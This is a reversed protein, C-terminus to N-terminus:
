LWGSHSRTKKNCIMYSVYRKLQRYTRDMRKNRLVEHAIDTLDCQVSRDTLKKQDSSTDGPMSEDYATPVAAVSVTEENEEVSLDIFCTSLRSGVSTSASDCITKDPDTKISSSLLVSAESTSESAEENESGPDTATTVVLAMQARYQNMNYKAADM